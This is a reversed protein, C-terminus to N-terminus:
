GKMAALMNGYVKNLQTLNGTLSSMQDKFVKSEQTADSMNQMATTLNAYFKNM